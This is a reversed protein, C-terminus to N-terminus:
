AAEVDLDPATRYPLSADALVDESTATAAFAEQWSAGDADPYEAPSPLEEGGGDGFLRRAAAWGAVAGLILFLGKRKSM